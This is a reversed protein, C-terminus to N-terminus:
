SSQLMLEEGDEPVRATLIAEAVELKNRISQLRALAQPNPSPLRASAQLSQLATNSNIFHAPITDATPLQLLPVNMGPRHLKSVHTSNSTKTTTPDKSGNVDASTATATATGLPPVNEEPLETRSSDMSDEESSSSSIISENDTTDEDQGGERGTGAPTVFRSTSINSRETVARSTGFGRSSALIAGQQHHQRNSNRHHQQKELEAELALTVSPLRLAAAAAQMVHMLAQKKSATGSATAQDPGREEEEEEEEKQSAQLTAQLGAILVEFEQIEAQRASAAASARAVAAQLAAADTALRDRRNGLNQVLAINEVLAAQQAQIAADLTSIQQKVHTQEHSARDVQQKLARQQQAQQTPASSPKMSCQPAAPQQKPPLANPIHQEGLSRITGRPTLLMDRYSGGRPTMMPQQENYYDVRHSGSAQRGCDGGSNTRRPAFFVGSSSTPTKKSAATAASDPTNRSSGAAAFKNSKALSGNVIPTFKQFRPTEMKTYTTTISSTKSDKRSIPRSQFTAGKIENLNLKPVGTPRGNLGAATKNPDSAM